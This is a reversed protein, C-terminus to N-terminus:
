LFCNAFQVKLQMNKHSQIDFSETDVICPFILEVENINLIEIQFIGFLSLM